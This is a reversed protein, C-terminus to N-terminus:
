CLGAIGGMHPWAFRALRRQRVGLATALWLRCRTAGRSAHRRLRWDWWRGTGRWALGTIEATTIRRWCGSLRAAETEMGKEDVVRQHCRSGTPSADGACTLRPSHLVGDEGRRHGAWTRGSGANVMQQASGPPPPAWLM